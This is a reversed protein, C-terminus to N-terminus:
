ISDYVKIKLKASKNGAGEDFAATITREINSTIMTIAMAKKKMLRRYTFSTRVILDIDTKYDVKEEECFSYLFSSSVLCLM